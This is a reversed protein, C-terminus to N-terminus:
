DLDAHERRIKEPVAVVNSHAPDLVETYNLRGGEGVTYFRYKAAPLSALFDRAASVPLGFGGSAEANAEFLIM